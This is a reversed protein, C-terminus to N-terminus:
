AGLLAQDFEFLAQNIEYVDYKKNKIFYEIIIDFKSSHSLAYGAKLLMDKTENLDLELAVALAIVTNKTPRYDMDKRIKSFLQRSINARKYCDSDKINKEDIKRLLMETFSEDVQNLLVELPLADSLNATDSTFLEASEKQIPEENKSCPYMIQSECVKTPTLDRIAKRKIPLPASENGEFIRRSREEEFYNFHEEFYKEDIYESIDSVLKESIKFSAKDFVVIYVLMDHELLFEGITDMAVKLAKDKPYGYVGSSILPFAVTECELELAKKLSEKYCSTLLEKEGENGGRWVPGVTHIIYKCSLKYALTAKAEGVNCGGLKRCEALLQRGAARHIAGDVGGGGLLSSNAANVIADCQMKTIDNRVIQIPM